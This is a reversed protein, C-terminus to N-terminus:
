AHAGGDISSAAHLASVRSRERELQREIIYRYLPPFLSLVIMGTYGTPLQYSEEFSRLRQYHRKPNAHHDSHRSLEFLLARSLPHDSNWSHIPKVSEYSRGKPRRSRQLGYHEIYNVTELLLAGILAAALFAGLTLLGFFAGILVCLGLETVVFRIMENEWRWPSLTRRSLRQVEFGWASRFSGIVSRWWFAYLSEGLRASAPDEETAVRAHHGRNHEIFFHQYLSTLLLVKAGRRAWRSSRHGLEHAANIGYAGCCIGMSFIMGLEEILTREGWAIQSLFFFLLGYQLPIVLYLIGAEFHERGSRSLATENKGDPSLVLELLPVFIFITLPTLWVTYGGLYYGVGAIVGIAHALLYQLAIM